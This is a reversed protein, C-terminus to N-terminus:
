VPRASAAAPLPLEAPEPPSVVVGLVPVMSRMKEALISASQRDLGDIAVRARYGQGARSVRIREPALGRQVFLNIVRLLAAPDHLCRIDFRTTM